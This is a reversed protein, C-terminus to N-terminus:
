DIIEMNDIIFFTTMNQQHVTSWFKNQWGLKIVVKQDMSQYFLKIIKRCSWSLTSMFYLVKNHDKFMRHLLFYRKDFYMKSSSRPWKAKFVMFVLCTNFPCTKVGNQCRAQLLQSLCTIQDSIGYMNKLRIKHSIILKYVERPNQIFWPHSLGWHCFRGPSKFNKLSKFCGKHHNLIVFNIAIEFWWFTFFHRQHYYHRLSSLISVKGINIQSSTSVCHLLSNQPVKNTSLQKISRITMVKKKQNLRKIDKRLVMQYLNLRCIVKLSLHCINVVFLIGCIQLSSCTDFNAGSRTKLRKGRWNLIRNTELLIRFHM